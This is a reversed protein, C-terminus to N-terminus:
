GFRATRRYVQRSENDVLSLDHPQQSADSDPASREQQERHEERRDTTQDGAHDDAPLAM